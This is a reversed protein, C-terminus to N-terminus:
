EEETAEVLEVEDEVGSDDMVAADDREKIRGPGGTRRSLAAELKLV